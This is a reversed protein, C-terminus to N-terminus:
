KGGGQAPVGPEDRVHDSEPDPFDDFFIRGCLPRRLTESGVARHTSRVSEM